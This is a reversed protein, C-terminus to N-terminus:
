PLGREARKANVEGLAETAPERILWGSGDTVYRQGNVVQVNGAPSYSEQAAAPAVAAPAVAAPAVAAPAVLLLLVIFTLRKMPFDEKLSFTRFTDIASLVSLRM